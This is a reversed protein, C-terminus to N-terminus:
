SIVVNVLVWFYLCIGVTNAMIDGLSFQRYPTLQQCCEILVGYTFLFIPKWSIGTHKPYATDLLFALVVFTFIHKIKDNIFSTPDSQAPIVAMILAFILAGFLAMKRWSEPVSNLYSILM